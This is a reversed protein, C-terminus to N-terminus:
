TSLRVGGFVDRITSCVRKEAWLTLYGPKTQEMWQLKMTENDAITVFREWAALYIPLKGSGIQDMFPNTIVRIGFMSGLFTGDKEGVDLFLPLGSSDKLERIFTVTTPHMMWSTSPLNYYQPPLKSVLSALDNYVITGSTASAQTLVTHIGNTPGSGNTGFAASSGGPYYNLGRLGYTAGYTTTTSGSQDNNFMMSQAEVTSFELALDMLLTDNLNNIDDLAATRVPVTAAVAQVPLQWFSTAESPTGSDATYVYGWPNTQNAANGTKVVFAEDSGITQIVRSGAARLPNAYRLAAFADDYIVRGGVGSGSGTLSSAEKLEFETLSNKGAKFKKFSEKVTNLLKKTTM